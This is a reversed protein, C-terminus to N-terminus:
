LWVHICFMIFIFFIIIFVLGILLGALTASRTISRLVKKSIEPQSDERGESMDSHSSPFKVRPSTHLHMGDVNMNAVVRDDDKINEQKINREKDRM